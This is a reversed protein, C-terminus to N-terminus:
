NPRLHTEPHKEADSKHTEPHKEADSKHTEPHKEADSKWNSRWMTGVEKHCWTLFVYMFHELIM